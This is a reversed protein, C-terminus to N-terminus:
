EVLTSAIGGGRAGTGDCAFNFSSSGNFRITNAILQSCGTAATVGSGNYTVEDRPFYLAGRYSEVGGGNVSSKGLPANRDQFFILGATPGSTPAVIETTGAGTFKVRAYGYGGGGTLVFTVGEGKLRITGVVELDGGKIVYIGPPFTVTGSGVLKLGSCYVAIPPQGAPAPLTIAGSFTISAPQAGCAGYTPLQVGAYPDDLSTAQNLSKGNTATLKASGNIAYNGRLRLSDTTVQATGNLQLATASTSNAALTCGHLNITQSGNLLVAMSAAPDLSIVCADGKVGAMSVARAGVAGQSNTLVGAFFRRMPQRIIVEVARPNGAYPGSKPANNVTVTVGGVGNRFGYSAAVAQAQETVNTAGALYTTAGSYAASDAANQAARRDKYAVGADVGLAGFGLVTTLVLGTFIASAGRRDAALRSFFGTM